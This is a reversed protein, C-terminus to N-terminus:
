LRLFFIEDDPKEKEIYKCIAKFYADNLALAMDVDDSPGDKLFILYQAYATVAQTILYQLFEPLEDTM